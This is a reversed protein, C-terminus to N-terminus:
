RRRRDNKHFAESPSMGDIKDIQVDNPVFRGSGGGADGGCGLFFFLIVGIGLLLGARVAGPTSM